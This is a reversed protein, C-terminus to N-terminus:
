ERPRLEDRAGRVDEGTVRASAREVAARLLDLAYRADGGVRSAFAACAPVVEDSVAGDAFATEVRLRLIDRLQDATYPPFYVTEECLSSNVRPDVIETFGADDSVCILSVRAGDLDSNVRSLSYLVGDDGNKVLRDADDLVAVVSEHSEVCEVLGDYVRDTPWGVEPVDDRGLERALRVLVRYGTDVEACDIHEVVCDVGFRQGASELERGVYRVTATKGTGRRGYMLINSPTESRLASVLVSATKEIQEDRHPLEKPIYSPELAEPKEFIGHKKQGNRDTVIEGADGKNKHRNM